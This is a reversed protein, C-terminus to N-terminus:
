RLPLNLISLYNAIRPDDRMTQYYPMLTMFILESEHRKIAEKLCALAEDVRNLHYYLTAIYPQSVYERKQIEILNDLATAISKKDGRKANILATVTLFLASNDIKQEGLALIRDLQPYNEQVLYIWAAMVFTFDNTSEMEIAQNLYTLAQEAKGSVLYHWGVMTLITVSLPDLKLATLLRSEAEDYRGVFTLLEGYWQQSKAQGPSLELAKIFENEAAEWDWDHFTHIGGLTAHIESNNEDLELTRMVATRALSIAERPLMLDYAFILFYTDALGARAPAYEPAIALSERFYKLASHFGDATRKNLEHRGQSYLQYADFPVQESTRTATQDASFELKLKNVIESSIDDQIAFIDALERDYKESWVQYGNSVDSLQASVRLRNGGKRVSGELVYNVNLKNGIERVDLNQGKFAFVSTRAVVQLNHVRNLAGIIDEAIGDCFFEQDSDNSLNTFPLVAISPIAEAVAEHRGSDTQLSLLAQSVEGAKQYRVAPEKELLKLAIKVLGQNGADTKPKPKDNIIAYFTAAESDRRFPQEGTAMEYLLVGLSFLDSRHDVSHGQIQEPSMYGVTGLTSGTKTLQDSGKVTALGFDVIRVRQNLDIIINSPKIDRHVIGKDHAVELGDCIQKTIELIRGTDLKENDLIEKLTRGEIHEMVFYPRGEFEAVEHITIINPHNLQAMAQAERKFRSRSPEDEAMFTPMFKLAVSRSLHHDTALYIEGMGGAGIKSLIEYHSIKTGPTLHRFPQTKDRNDRNM